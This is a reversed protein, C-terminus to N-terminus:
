AEERLLFATVADPARLHARRVRQEIAQLHTLKEGILQIAALHADTGPGLSTLPPAGISDLVKGLATAIDDVQQLHDGVVQLAEDVETSVYGSFLAQYLTNMADQVDTV